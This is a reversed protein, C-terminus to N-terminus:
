DGASGRPDCGGGPAGVKSRIQGSTSVKRILKQPGEQEEGDSDSSEDGVEPQLSRDSGLSSVSERNERSLCMDPHLKEAMRRLDPEGAAESYFM